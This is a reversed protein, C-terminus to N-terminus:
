VELLQQMQKLKQINQLREVESHSLYRKGDIKRDEVKKKRIKMILSHYSVGILKAAEPLPIINESMLCVKM